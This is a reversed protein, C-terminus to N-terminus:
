ILIGRIKDIMGFRSQAGQGEPTKAFILPLTAGNLEQTADTFYLDGDRKRIHAYLEGGKQAIFDDISIFKGNLKVTNGETQHEVTMPGIYYYDVPGGMAETGRLLTQLISDPVKVSVDPVLKNKYLNQGELGEKEVVEKYYQYAKNYFDVVFQLIEPNGGEKTLARIGTIGGSGLTPASPGKASVLLKKGDTTTLILDSYPEVGSPARGEYKEAKAIGTLKSGDKSIITKTGEVSNIAEVLGHEQRETTEQKSGGTGGLEKTKSIANFGLENGAEDKFFPFQNIRTGGLEKIKQVDQGKFLPGYSSDAFTLVSEEGNELKFPEQNAIKDAIVELRYYKRSADSLDAWDLKKELIVIGDTIEFLIRLDEESNIDPYGKNTRWSWETVIKDILNM